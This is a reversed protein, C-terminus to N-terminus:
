SRRIEIVTPSREIIYCGNQVAVAKVLKRWEVFRVCRPSHAIRAPPILHVESDLGGQVVSLFPRGEELFTCCTGPAPRPELTLTKQSVTLRVGVSQAARILARWPRDEISKQLRRSRGYGEIQFGRDRCLVEACEGVTLGAELRAAYQPARVFQDPEHPYSPDKLEEILYQAEIRSDLAKKGDSAMSSLLMEPRPDNRESTAFLEVTRELSYFSHTSGNKRYIDLLTLLSEPDDFDELRAYAPEATADDARVAAEIASRLRHKERVTPYFCVFAGCLLVGVGITLALPSRARIRVTQM